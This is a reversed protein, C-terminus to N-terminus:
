HARIASGTLSIQLSANTRPEDLPQARGLPWSILQRNERDSCVFASPNRFHDANKQFLCTDHLWLGTQCHWGPLDVTRAPASDIPLFSDSFGPTAALM